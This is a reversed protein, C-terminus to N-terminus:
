LNKMLEIQLEREEKVKDFNKPYMLNIVVIAYEMFAFGDKIIKGM